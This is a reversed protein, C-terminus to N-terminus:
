KLEVQAGAEELKKKAEAAEEKKAKELLKQPTKEVLDKAEKLGLDPKIERVVKIVGIKNAGASALIVDFESQEIIPVAPGTPAASGSPATQPAAVAIPAGSVGFKEELYKVLDSLEVISLKEIEAVIKELKESLKTKEKAKDSM